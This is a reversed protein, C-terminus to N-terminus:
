EDVIFVKIYLPFMGDDQNFYSFQIDDVIYNYGNLTVKVGKQVNIGYHAGEHKTNIFGDEFIGDDDIKEMITSDLPEGNYYFCINM